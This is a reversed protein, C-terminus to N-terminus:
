RWSPWDVQWGVSLAFAGDRLGRAADVRLTAGEGLLQLRLGAGVDVEVPDPSSGPLPGWSEAADAFFAFGWRAPGAAALWEQIEVGGHVLYRGFVNGEVDIIGDQLLPHARLLPRRAHGVGAGSWLDLPARSSTAEFALRSLLLLGHTRPSSRWKSSLGGTAFPADESLGFWGNGEARLALRNEVLRREIAGGLSLYGGRGDSHDLGLTAEWRLDATAWDSVAVAARRRSEQIVRGATGRRYSQEEWFGELRWGGLRPVALSMSVRPRQEWWRWSATWLEGSKMANAINVSLERETLARLSAGVLEVPSDMFLPREVLAVDVEARGGPLPRYDIRSSIEVPLEALRRQARRLGEDTLSSGVPLDIQEAVIQYPTRRLGEIRTLDVELDDTHSWARLAGEEDDLLFRSSALLRWAHTDEPDLAVAKEALQAADVFRSQLLRVGALERSPAASTPCLEESSSLVSEAAPLEGLHALRVGERVLPWCEDRRDPGREDTDGEDVKSEAPLVLLTWRGTVEWAKEFEDAEVAQFPALGPDHLVVHDSTWGVLVVYHYRGPRDEILALLPRGKSIHQRALWESGRFPMAQWGRKRVADILAEARIGEEEDDLLSAFDEAFVRREGWYRLVM